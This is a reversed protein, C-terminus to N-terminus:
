SRTRSRLPRSSARSRLATTKSLVPVKVSPSCRTTATTAAPSSSVSAKRSARPALLAGSVGAGPADNPAGDLPLEGDWPDSRELCDRAVAHLGIEVAASQCDSAGVENTALLDHHGRLDLCERHVRRPAGLADDVEGLIISREGGKRHS